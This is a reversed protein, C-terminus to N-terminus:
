CFYTTLDRSVCLVDRPCLATNQLTSVAPLMRNGSATSFHILGVNTKRQKDTCIVCIICCQLYEFRHQNLKKANVTRYIYATFEEYRRSSNVLLCPTMDCFIQIHLHYQTNIIIAMVNFKPQSFLLSRGVLVDSKFDTNGRGM